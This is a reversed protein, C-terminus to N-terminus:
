RTGGLFLFGFLKDPLSKGVETDGLANILFPVAPTSSYGMNGLAYAARVRTYPDKSQLKKIQKAVDTAIDSSYATPSSAEVNEGPVILGAQLLL